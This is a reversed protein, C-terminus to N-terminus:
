DVPMTIVPRKYKKVFEDTVDIIQLDGKERLKYVAKIIDNKVDEFSTNDVIKVLGTAADKTNSKALSNIVDRKLWTNNEASLVNLQYPVASEWETFIIMERAMEREKYWERFPKEDNKIEYKELNDLIEKQKSVDQKTLEIDCYLQVQHIPGAVYLKETDPKRTAESRLRYEVQCIIQYKDPPLLTSCWQNLVISKKVTEGL